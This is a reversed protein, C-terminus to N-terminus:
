GNVEYHVAGREGEKRNLIGSEVLFGLRSELERPDKVIKNRFRHFVRSRSVSGGQGRVWAEIEDCDRQFDGESIMEAVRFLNGYWEEAARIAHLADDLDIFTRGRYLACIGACKVITEVLRTLAPEVIDWNERHEAKRVIDRYAQTIRAQADANPRLAIPDQIHAVASVLDAVVERIVPPAEQLDEDSIRDLDKFIEFREDSDVKPLGFSWNVRALFGSKFQDRTIAEVLNEPTSFMHINFSTTASKGRMEKLSIKNSPDVYGMYWASLTEELGSNWDRAQLGKFFRAAEDAAFLSSKGDRELLALQLGQISSEHGLNYSAGEPNDGDFIQRLVQERFDVTVSKGTGSDGLTINWLNLGIRQTESMPVFAKFGFVTSAMIWGISRFYPLQDYGLDRAIQEVYDVFTPRTSLHEREEETLLENSPDVKKLSLEREEEIRPNERTPEPTVRADQVRTYVFELGWERALDRTAPCNWLISAVRDDSDTAKVLAALLQSFGTRGTPDGTFLSDPVETPVMDIHYEPLNKVLDTLGGFLELGRHLAEDFKYEWESEPTTHNEAPRNLWAERLVRLLDPVGTNGEAGLRIAEHQREVMESHSLDGHVREMAHRVLVNPEGPTLSEFWEKLEGEFEHLARETKEDLLWDPALAISEIEPVPGVWMVWSSGARRDVGEMGRYDAVGNLSKDGPARYVLHTGGTGTSYSFTEPVDVWAKDLSDWGDKGNKQDVDLVVIGSAGTFVGVKADPFESWWKEVQGLDTTSDLHGRPTLPRKSNDEGHRVPFVHFKKAALQLAKDKSM